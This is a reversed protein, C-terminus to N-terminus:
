WPLMAEYGILILSKVSSALSTLTWLRVNTILSHAGVAHLSDNEDGIGLKMENHYVVELFTRYDSQNLDPWTVNLPSCQLMWHVIGAVRRLAPITSKTYCMWQVWLKRSTYAYIARRKGMWECCHMHHWLLKASRILLSALRWFGFVTSQSPFFLIKVGFFTNQLFYRLRPLSSCLQWGTM